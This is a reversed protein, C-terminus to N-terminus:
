RVSGRRVGALRIALKSTAFRRGVKKVFDRVQRVRENGRRLYDKAHYHFGRGSSRDRECTEGQDRVSGSRGTTEVSDTTQGQCGTAKESAVSSRNEYDKQETLKNIYRTLTLRTQEKQNDLSVLKRALSEYNTNMKDMVEEGKSTLNKVAEIKCELYHLKIRTAEASIETGKDLINHGRRHDLKLDVHLGWRSNGKYKSKTVHFRPFPTNSGKWEKIFEESVNPFRSLGTFNQYGASVLAERNVEDFKLNM